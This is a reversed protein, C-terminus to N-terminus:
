QSAFIMAFSIFYRQAAFLVKLVFGVTVSNRRKWFSLLFTLSEIDNLESFLEWNTVENVLNASKYLNYEGNWHTYM